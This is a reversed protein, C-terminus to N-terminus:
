INQAVRRMNRLHWSARFRQLILALKSLKQIFNVMTRQYSGINGFINGFHSVASELEMSKQECFSLVKLAHVFKWWTNVFKAMLKQQLHSLDCTWFVRSTGHQAIKKRTTKFGRIRIKDKWRETSRWAKGHIKKWFQVELAWFHGSLAGFYWHIWNQLM